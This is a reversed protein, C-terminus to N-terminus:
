ELLGSMHSDKGHAHVYQYAKLRCTCERKTKWTRDLIFCQDPQTADMAAKHNDVELSQRYQFM